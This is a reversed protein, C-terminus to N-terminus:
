ESPIAGSGLLIEDLLLGARTGSSAVLISAASIEANHAPQEDKGTTVCRTFDSLKFASTKWKGPPPGFIFKEYTKGGATIHVCLDASGQLKYTFKIWSDRSSKLPENGAAFKLDIRASFPAQQVAEAKVAGGSAGSAQKEWSGKLVASADTDADFGSQWIVISAAEAADDKAAGLQL